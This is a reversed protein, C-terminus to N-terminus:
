VLAAKGVAGRVTKSSSLMLVLGFILTLVGAAVIGIRKWLAPNALKALFDTLGLGGAIGTALGGTIGQPIAAGPDVPAFTKGSADTFGKTIDPATKDPSGAAARARPLFLLYKGKNYAVWPHWNTGHASIAYAAAANQLPDGMALIPFQASHVSNIQWLGTDVTGDTNKNSSDIVGGSEALCVAVATVLGDGTFGAGIALQAIQADTLTGHHPYLPM